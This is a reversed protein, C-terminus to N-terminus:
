HLRTDRAWHSFVSKTHFVLMVFYLLAVLGHVGAAVRESTEGCGTM